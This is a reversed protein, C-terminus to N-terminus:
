KKVMASLTNLLAVTKQVDGNDLLENNKLRTRVLMDIERACDGVDDHNFTGATGALSHSLQSFALLDNHTKSTEYKHWQEIIETIKSPLEDDFAQMIEALRDTGSRDTM